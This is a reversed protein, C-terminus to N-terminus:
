VMEYEWHRALTGTEKYGQWYKANHVSKIIARCFLHTYPLVLSHNQNAKGQPRIISLVHRCAQKGNAYGRSHLTQHRQKIQM